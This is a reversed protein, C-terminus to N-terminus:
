AFESMTTLLATLRACAGTPFRGAFWVTISRILLATLGNLKALHSARQIGYRHSPPHFPYSFSPSTNKSQKIPHMAYKPTTKRNPSKYEENRTTNITVPNNPTLLHHSKSVWLPHINREKKEKKEEKRRYFGPWNM